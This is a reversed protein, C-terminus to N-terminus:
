LRRPWSTMHNSLCTDINQLLGSGKDECYGPFPPLMNWWIGIVM